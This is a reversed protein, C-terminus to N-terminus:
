PLRQMLTLCAPGLANGTPLPLPNGAVVEGIALQRARLKEAVALTDDTTLAVEQIGEGHYAGLFGECADAPGDPERIPIHIKSCPSIMRDGADHFNFLRGYFDAWVARRGRHVTHSLHGVGALGIGAPWTDVGAVPVFDIDYITLGEYRDVLYILSGGIGRIAPINLEMPGAAVSVLEAGLRHAREAAARANKVRLAVACISAGHVRAFSQAFSAPESNLIFNIGGQRYLTVDKARHCAVPTFGLSRFLKDLGAPEPTAFEIFEIGDTGMPNIWADTM